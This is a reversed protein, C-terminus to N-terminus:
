VTRPVLVEVNGNRSRVQVHTLPAPSSALQSFLLRGDTAFATRHCPCDLRGAAANHQLICGQHTCSASVGVVGRDTGSVFGVVGGAEFRQTGENALKSATTVATWEGDAPDLLSAAQAPSASPSVVARDVAAGAVGAAVAGAAVKGATALLSRRSVNPGPVASAERSLRARLGAVFTESPLDAAPTGARLEIAARLAEVDEPDEIRGPPMPRGEAVADFLRDPRRKRPSM